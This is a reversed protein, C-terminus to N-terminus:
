EAASVKSASEVRAPPSTMSDGQHGSDGLSASCYLWRVRCILRGPPRARPEHASRTRAGGTPPPRCRGDVDGLPARTLGATYVRGARVGRGQRPPLPPGLPGASEGRGGAARYRDLVAPQARVPRGGGRGARLRDAHGRRAEALPVELGLDHVPRVHVGACVVLCEVGDGADIEDRGAREDEPRRDAVQAPLPLPGAVGARDPHQVDGGTAAVHRGPQPPPGPPLAEGQLHGAAVEARQRDLVGPLRGGPLLGVDDNKWSSRSVSGIGAPYSTMVQESNRCWRSSAWATSRARRLHAVRGPRQGQDVVQRAAPEPPPRRVEAGAEQGARRHDVEVAHTDTSPANVGSSASATAWLAPHSPAVTLRCTGTGSGATRSAATLTSASGPRPRRRGGPTPRPRPRPRAPRPSPRGRAPGGRPRPAAPRYPGSGGSCPTRRTGSGAPGAPAGAPGPETM